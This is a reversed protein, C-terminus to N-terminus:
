LSWEIAPKSIIVDLGRLGWVWFGGDRDYLGGEVWGSM